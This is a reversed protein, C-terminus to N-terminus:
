LWRPGSAESLDDRHGGDLEGGGGDGLVDSELSPSDKGLRLTMDDSNADDTHNTADRGGDSGRETATDDEDPAGPTKPVAEITSDRSHASGEGIVSLPQRLKSQERKHVPRLTGSGSAESMLTETPFPVTSSSATGSSSALVTSTPLSHRRVRGDHGDNWDVPGHEQGLTGLSRHNTGYWDTPLSDRAAATQDMWSRVNQDQLTPESLYSGPATSPSPSSASSQPKVNNLISGVPLISFIQDDATQPGLPFCRM